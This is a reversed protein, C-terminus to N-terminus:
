KEREVRVKLLGKHLPALRRFAGKSLDIIRGKKVLWKSPGYDNHRVVVSRGNQINTVKYKKGFHHSPLACTLGEEDFREGSATWVGSTGERKCSEESYWSALGEIAICTGPWCLLYASIICLLIIYAKGNIKM